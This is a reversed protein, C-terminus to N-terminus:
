PTDPISVQEGERAAFCKLPADPPVLRTQCYEVIRDMEEDTHMPEHHFLALRKVRATVAMSVVDDICAHGWGVRKKYEEPTYPSDEILLDAEACFDIYEQDRLSAFQIKEEETLEDGSELKYKSPTIAMRLYPEHDSFYVVDGDESSIRFGLTVGPHNLFCTSVTLGDISFEPENIHRFQLTAAMERLTVPFYPSEMQGALADEIQRNVGEAGYVIFTNSPIFAPTFFPFGQIHDWHTHSILIHARIPNGNARQLLANGLVRLGTGCDIILLTDQHEITVCPTNGGYRCTSAGPTPISGRVGWFTVVM